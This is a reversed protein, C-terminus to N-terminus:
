IRLGLRQVQLVSVHAQDVDVKICKDKPYDAELKEFMSSLEVCPISRAAYFFAVVNKGAQLQM